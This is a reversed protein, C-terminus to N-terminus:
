RGMAREEGDDIFLLIAKSKLCKPTISTIVACLAAGLLVIM